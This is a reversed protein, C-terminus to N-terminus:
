FNFLLGINFTIREMKNWEGDHDESYEVGYQKFIGYYDGITATLSVTPTLRFGGYFEMNLGLGVADDSAKVTSSQYNEVFFLPGLGIRMGFTWRSDERMSNMVYQPGFYYIGMVWMLLFIIPVPGIFRPAPLVATQMRHLRIFPQLCLM